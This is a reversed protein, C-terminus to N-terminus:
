CTPQGTRTFHIIRWLQEADLPFDLEVEGLDALADRVANMIAAPVGICGAEGVGKAGLPNNPSPSAMSDISIPPMDAARPIAYDMFSGTLLQGDTDHRVCEMLAQGLGQAAGGMLQGHALVPEIIRGADDAWCLKEVTLEGTDSDIRVRSMICGASWAESSEFRCEAHIPLSAGAERQRLIDECAKLIASGGIATSRSALTGIGQPCADTDGIVVDISEPACGLAAAAIRTWTTRHGQGQAPSGSGVTYRGNEHLTIRAWELGQGCPEVYFATGIGVREGTRRRTHQAAREGAYDFRACAMELLAPYDGSDLVEGSATRYPLQEPGLLNRRRLEIPDIRHARAAMELLTEMLLTAEPRGAGRYINVPARPSRRATGRVDVNRLGYPGPLIRAANRLPVVASFALWAGLDFDLEAQILSMRSDQDLSLSGSIRSARGQTASGFEENRTATWRISAKLHRAALAIILDEPYVSAKAGFAGGVDGTLVRVQSPDLGLVSAIDDRARTPSQTGLQVEIRGSAENWSALCGRPEMPAAAVRPSHIRTQVTVSAQQAQPAEDGLAIRTVPHDDFPECAPQYDVRLLSHGLECAARTEGVIVAIPQGVYTARTSALVPFRTDLEIPLLPNHAPMFHPGGLDAATLIARVGPQASASAVENLSFDSWALDSRVFLAQLLGPVQQNPIFQGRGRLLPEDEQRLFHRGTVNSFDSLTLSM